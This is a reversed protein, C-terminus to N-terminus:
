LFAMDEAEIDFNNTLFDFYHHLYWNVEQPDKTKFNFVILDWTNMSMQKAIKEWSDGDTVKYRESNPPVYNKPVKIKPETELPM